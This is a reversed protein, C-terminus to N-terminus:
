NRGGDIGAAFARFGTPTLILFISPILRAVSVAQAMARDMASPGSPRLHSHWTGLCYLSCDLSKMYGELQPKLGKMGLVFEGGSRLSDEPPELVDVVHAVGAAESLRGILVGGTEINPWRAAEEQMKAAARKHVHVQWSGGNTTGVVITPDIRCNRWALGLGDESLRGILIEGADDPLGGRQKALLYEAMGAALLSLRGDSMTMTLSGCGQGTAQRAVSDDNMFVVSALEPNERLLVYFEAMLDATDPNRKPGEVTIAGVTGGAFLSTEIVRAPMRENEALAERVSLSATANVVAWSRKSWARRATDPSALVGMLDQMIPIADQNLGRLAESLLRAKADMWSIQMDGTTPVLAHRAANHPAMASRDVVVAPGNGARALHLALKSGLSGTGILTWQPREKTAANGAMQALLPRSVAHHHAAPRVTTEGDGAFPHPIRVDIVYPCLEIPSESGIVKFPRRALLIVAMSIPETSQYGSLCGELWRLGAGLENACGYLEAREKLKDVNDVTEPLYTDCVIPKGSPHKGPWVVLALSKGRRFRGDGDMAMKGVFRTVTKRNFGVAESSVQGHVYDSGDVGRIRLYAFALFRHGGNRNALGQIYGADAVISDNFSDRRVPEWGQESDILMDLAARELWGATQNLIGVLGDKHLLEALDGDYICPVPCGDMLWPQMHPLNRNFDARLSLTPPCSPFEVPFSFRVSERLRVGTPSEGSRRWASPLSVDFTVDVATEGGAEDPVGVHSVSPHNSVLTLARSLAEDSKAGTAMRKM